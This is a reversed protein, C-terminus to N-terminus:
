RMAAAARVVLRRLLSPQYGCTEGCRTRREAALPHKLFVELPTEGSNDASKLLGAITEPSMNKVTTKEAACVEAYALQIECTPILNLFLAGRQVDPLPPISIKRHRCLACTENRGVILDKLLSM